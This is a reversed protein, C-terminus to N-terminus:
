YEDNLNSNIAFLEEANAILSPIEQIEINKLITILKLYLAKDGMVFSSSESNYLENSNHSFNHVKKITKRM